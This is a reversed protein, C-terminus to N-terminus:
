DVSLFTTIGGAELARRVTPSAGRLVLARDAARLPKYCRVFVNMGSSDIFTVGALDVVVDHEGGAAATELAEQLAPATALDVEGVVIVGGGPQAVASFGGDGTGTSM